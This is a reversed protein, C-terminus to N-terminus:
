KLPMKVNFYNNTTKKRMKLRFIYTTVLNMVLYSIQRWYRRYRRTLVFICLFGPCLKDGLCTTEPKAFNDGSLLRYFLCLNVIEPYVPSMPSM